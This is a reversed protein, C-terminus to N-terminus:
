FGLLKTYLVCMPIDLSIPANMLPQNLPADNRPLITDPRNASKTAASIIKRALEQDLMSAMKTSHVREFDKPIYRRKEM